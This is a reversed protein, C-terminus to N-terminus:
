EDDDDDDDTGSTAVPWATAAEDGESAGEAEWAAIEAQIRALEDEESETEGQTREVPADDDDDDDAPTSRGGDPSPVAPSDDFRRADKLLRGLTGDVHARFTDDSGGVRQAGIFVQPVTRQGYTEAMANQFETMDVRADLDIEIVHPHVEPYQEALLKKVARCYPCYSKSVIVVRHARIADALTESEDSYAMVPSVACAGLLVLTLAVSSALAVRRSPSTPSPFSRSGEEAAARLPASRSAFVRESRRPASARGLAAPLSSASAASM